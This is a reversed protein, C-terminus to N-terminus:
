TTSDEETAKPNPQIKLIEGVLQHVEAYPRNALYNLVAQMLDKSVTYTM